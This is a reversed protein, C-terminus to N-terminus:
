RKKGKLDKMASCINHLENAIILGVKCLRSSETPMRSLDDICYKEKEKAM